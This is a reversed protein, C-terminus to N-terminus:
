FRRLVFEPKERSRRRYLKGHFLFYTIFLYGTFNQFTVHFCLFLIDPMERIQTQIIAMFFFIDLPFRCWLIRFYSSFLFHLNINIWLCELEEQLYM